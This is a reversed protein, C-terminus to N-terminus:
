MKLPPALIIKLMPFHRFLKEKEVVSVLHEKIAIKTERPLKTKDVIVLLPGSPLKIRLRRRVYRSM